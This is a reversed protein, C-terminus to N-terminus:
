LLLRRTLYMLLEPIRGIGAATPTLRRMVFTSHRRREAVRPIKRLLLLSTLSTAKGSVKM